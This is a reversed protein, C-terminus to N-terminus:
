EMLVLNNQLYECTVNIGYPITKFASRGVDFMNFSSRGVDFTWCRVDFLSIAESKLNNKFDFLFWHRVNLVQKHKKM